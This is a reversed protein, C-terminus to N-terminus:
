PATVSASFSSPGTRPKATSVREVFRNAVQAVALGVLSLTPDFGQALATVGAVISLPATAEKLVSTDKPEQKPESSYFDVTIEYARAPRVSDHVQLVSPFSCGAVFSLTALTCLGFAPLHAQKM